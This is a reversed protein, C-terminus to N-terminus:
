DEEEKGPKVHSKTLFTLYLFLLWFIAVEKGEIPLLDMKERSLVM